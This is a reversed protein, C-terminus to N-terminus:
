ASSASRAAGPAAHREAKALLARVTEDAVPPFDDYFAGVARFLGPTAPAILEDVQARLAAATNPPAVPVALVLREVGRRRLAQVAAGITAGTAVGDDVLIVTARPPLALSRGGRYLERCRRIEGRARDVEGELLAQSTRTAAAMEPRVYPAEDEAVAGVALEPNGPAGLKRAIMVGLPLGLAAAVEAAPVVGGRALGLVVAGPRGRYRKLRAALERGAERRDRYRATATGESGIM